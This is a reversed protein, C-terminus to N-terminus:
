APNRPPEGSRLWGTVSYRGAPAYSAVQTVLHPTPVRLLNLANFAPRYAEHLHGFDDPFALLGGWDPRWEPTFSFIYAARRNKGAVDDDHWTLFDGARYLTAQADAFSIDALGTAARAFGLFEDSNLFEYLAMLYLDRHTGAAYNEDLRFNAYRYAFGRSAAADLSRVLQEREEAPLEDLSSVPLDHSSREDGIAVRWPTEEALCRHLRQAAAAELIASVHVRGTQQFIRRVLPANTRGDLRIVPRASTDNPNSAANM